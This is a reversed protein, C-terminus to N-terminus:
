LEYSEIARKYTPDDKRFSDADTGRLAATFAALLQLPVAALVPSLSEPVSPFTYTSAVESRLGAIPLRGALREDAVLFVRAGIICLARVLDAARDAAPGDAVIVAAVDGPAVAQLGGHLVTELEFGEAVLYSSEKVKLAGERATVSNPGAGALVLRGCSALTEAVPQIEGERELMYAVHEPLSTVADRLEVVREGKLEGVQVALLALVSLASTYSATHTASVENEVTPITNELTAASADSRTITIVTAGAARAREVALEGYRKGGRHSIAIVADQPDVRPGYNVLDFNTTASAELGATRLLHEGVAAAHSSTGTGTLFIRESAILNEAARRVAEHTQDRVARLAEPQSWITRYLASKPSKYTEM